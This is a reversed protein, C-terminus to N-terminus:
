AAERTSVWEVSEGALVAIRALKEECVPLNYEMIYPLALGCAIGHPVNYKVAFAYALAHGGCVGASGFALGALLAALSMGYRAELNEGQYCAKRLNRFVLKVAEYALADTLPNSNVSMLAEVAHTLADIGTSATLRPPMTLTAEPDVIAVDAMLQPGVIGSKIEEAALSVVAINTVESGTGATTPILIKPLGAQKILGVGVYDAMKGPNTPAISAVKAMDLVSGGGVGIVLNCGSKRSFEAAKEAVELKPEPEVEDFVQVSLGAQELSKSVREVLGTKVIVKDTVILAKDGGLRRAM